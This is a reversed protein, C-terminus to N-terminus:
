TLIIIHIFRVQTNPFIIQGGLTAPAWIGHDDMRTLSQADMPTLSQADMPTLSAEIFDNETLPDVDRSRPAQLKLEKKLV